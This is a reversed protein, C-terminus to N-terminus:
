DIKVTFVGAGTLPIRRNIPQWSGPGCRVAIILLEGSRPFGGIPLSWLGAGEKEAELQGRALVGDATATSAGGALSYEVTLPGECDLELGISPGAEPDLHLLRPGGDAHSVTFNYPIYGEAIMQSSAGVELYGQWFGDSSQAIGVGDGRKSLIRFPEVPRGSHSEAASLSFYVYDPVAIEVVADNVSPDAVISYSQEFSPSTRSNLKPHHLASLAVPRGPLDSLHVFGQADTIADRPPFAKPQVGEVWGAHPSPWMGFLQPFEAFATKVKQDECRVLFGPAPRESDIAVRVRLSYSPELTLTLQGSLMDPRASRAPKFYRSVYGPTVTYFRQCTDPFPICIEGGTPALTVRRAGEYIAVVQGTKSISPSSSIHLGPPTDRALRIAIPERYEAIEAPNIATIASAGLDDLARLEYDVGIALPLVCLGHGGELTLASPPPAHGVRGSSTPDLWVHIESAGESGTIDLHIDRSQLLRVVPAQDGESSLHGTWPSYSEASIAVFSADRAKPAWNALGNLDTIAEAGSSSARVRAGEVPSGTTSDLVLLTSAFESEELAVTFGGEGGPWSMAITHTYYGALEVSVQVRAMDPLTFSAEGAEDTVAFHSPKSEDQPLGFPHWEPTQQVGVTAGSLAHGETDVVHILQEVPPMLLVHRLEGFRLSVRGVYSHGESSAVRYDLHPQSTEFAKRKASWEVDDKSAWEVDSASVTRNSRGESFRVWGVRAVVVEHEPRPKAEGPDIPSSRPKHVEPLDLATSAGHDVAIPRSPAEAKRIASSGVYVLLAAAILAAAGLHLKVEKV